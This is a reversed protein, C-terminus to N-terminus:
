VLKVTYVGPYQCYWLFLQLYVFLHLKLKGKIDPYEEKTLIVNVSINKVMYHNDTSNKKFLIIFNNSTNDKNCWTINLIQTDNGFHGTATANKPIDLLAYKRQFSLTWFLIIFVIEPCSTGCKHVWYIALASLSREVIQGELQLICPVNKM